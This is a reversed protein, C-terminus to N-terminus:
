RLWKKPGNAVRARAAGPMAETELPGACVFASVPIVWCRPSTSRVTAARFAAELAGIYTPEASSGWRLRAVGDIWVRGNEARVRGDRRPGRVREVLKPWSPFGYQRALVFQADHLALPLAPAPLVSAVRALAEPEGDRHRRQLTKAQNRLNELSPREPFSVVPSGSSRVVM